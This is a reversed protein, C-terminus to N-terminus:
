AGILKSTVSKIRYIYDVGDETLTFLEGEKIDKRFLNTEARNDCCTGFNVTQTTADSKTPADFIMPYKDNDNKMYGLFEQPIIKDGNLIVDVIIKLNDSDETDDVAVIRVLRNM